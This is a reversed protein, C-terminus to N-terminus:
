KQKRLQLPFQSNYQYVHVSTGRYLIMQAILQTYNNLFFFETNIELSKLM